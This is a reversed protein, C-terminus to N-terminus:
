PMDGPGARGARGPAGGGQWLKGGPDIPGAPAAAPGAPAFRAPRSM